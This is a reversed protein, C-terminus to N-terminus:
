NRTSRSGFREAYERSYHAGLLLLHVGYYVWLLVVILVGAPGYLPLRLSNSIFRGILANGATFLLTTLIAAGWIDGWAIPAEPVQRLIAALLLAMLIFTGIAHFLSWMPTAVPFLDRLIPFVISDAIDVLLTALVLTVSLLVMLMSILRQLLARRLGAHSPVGWVDNLASRLHYFVASSFYAMMAFGALGATTAGPADGVMNVISEATAAAAPGAFRNAAAVVQARAESGGLLMGISTLLVLMLPALSLVAYYAIAAAKQSTDAQWWRKLAPWVLMTSDLLFM